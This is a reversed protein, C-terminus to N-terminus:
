QVADVQMRIVHFERRHAGRTCLILQHTNHVCERPLWAGRVLLASNESDAFLRLEGDTAAVFRTADYWCGARAGPKLEVRMGDGRLSLLVIRDQLVDYYAFRQDDPSLARGLGAFSQFRGMPTDPIAADVLAEPPFAGPKWHAVQSQSESQRLFVIRGDATWTPWAHQENPSNTPCPTLKRDALSLVFLQFHGPTQGLAVFAIAEGSPSFAPTMIGRLAVNLRETKGSATDYLSLSCNEEGAHVVYALRAGDSSWAPWIAGSPCVVRTQSGEALERLHLSMGSLNEGTWLSELTPPTEGRYDLCAIWRGDPSVAPLLLGNNSAEGLGQMQVRVHTVAAPGWAGDVKSIQKQRPPICGALIVMAWTVYFTRKM